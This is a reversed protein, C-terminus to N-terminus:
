EKNAFTDVLVAFASLALPLSVIIAVNANILWIIVFFLGVWVSACWVCTFLDAIINTGVPNSLEDYKIGIIFRFKVLIGFPGEETVLLSSLRWTALGLVLLATITDM